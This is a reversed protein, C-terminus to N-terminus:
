KIKNVYPMEEKEKIKKVYTIVTQSVAEVIGSDFVNPIFKETTPNKVMAAICKAIEYQLSVDVKNAKSILLGKFLGPFVLINNVQNPFKSSGTAILNVGAEKAINPEIEPLPNALAFVIPNNGMKKIMESTLVNGVSLGIFVDQGVIADNLTSSEIKVKNIHNLLERQYKNLTQDKKKLVGQKDILTLNTIGAAILLRATAFGSAGIGNIVIHLDSLSKDKLKAANILAALIIIATGEQDDHYVPISLKKQLKEEIEFCKPAAIDELHIGAFSSQLNEITQVIENVSRQEIALPIADVGALNKYLLAKGEVIPLGAQAGVNGLGLVASGDTIIAVLKGSITLERALNHNKEIMLSLEAVGPTYMKALDQSNQVSETTALKLVGINKKHIDVVEDFM